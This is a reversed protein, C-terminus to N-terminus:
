QMVIVSDRDAQPLAELMETVTRDFAPHLWDPAVDALPVLVFARDQLRPHPLILEQPAKEMQEAMDLQRWDAHVDPSPLVQDGVAILDLDLTREGWRAVRVRGLDAEVGHLVAMIEQPTGPMSLRAAANAFDPGAGAPFAPTCYIPSQCRIAVGREKLAELAMNLTTAPPGASSTLNSGLAILVDDNTKLPLGGNEGHGLAQSM